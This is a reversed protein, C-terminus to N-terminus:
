MVMLTARLRGRHLANYWLPPLAAPFAKLACLM